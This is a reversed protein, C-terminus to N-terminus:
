TEDSFIIHQSDTTIGSLSPLRGLLFTTKQKAYKDQGELPIIFTSNKFDSKIVLPQTVFLHKTVAQKHIAM